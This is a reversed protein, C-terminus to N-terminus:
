SVGFFLQFFFSFSDLHYKRIDKLQIHVLLVSRMM